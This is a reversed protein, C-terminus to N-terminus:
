GPQNASDGLARLAKEVSARPEVGIEMDIITGQEDIVWYSRTAFPVPLVGLLKSGWAGFADLTKHDTDSLLDYQLNQQTHWGKLAEVSDTSIGLVVAKDTDIQPFADRFACAQTTCGPTGAKPFAFLVVKKGRLDDSQILQGDQNRLAFAPARDGIAAM